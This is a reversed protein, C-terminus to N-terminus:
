GGSTRATRQFLCRWMEVLERSWEELGYRGSADIFRKVGDPDAPFLEYFCGTARLEQNAAEIIARASGFTVGSHACAVNGGQAKGFLAFYYDHEGIGNM